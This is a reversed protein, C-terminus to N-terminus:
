LSLSQFSVKAPMVNFFSNPKSHIFLIRLPLQGPTVIKLEHAYTPGFFPYGTFCLTRCYMDAVDFHLYLLMKSVQEQPRAHQDTQSVQTHPM